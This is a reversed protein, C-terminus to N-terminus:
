YTSHCKALNQHGMKLIENRGGHQFSKMINPDKPKKDYFEEVKRGSTLLALTLHIDIPTIQMKKETTIYLTVSYPDFNGAFWKCLDGPLEIVQLELFRGFSMDQIAQKQAENFEDESEIEDEHRHPPMKYTSDAVTDNTEESIQRHINTVTKKSSEEPINKPMRPSGRPQMRRAGHQTKRKGLKEQAIKM